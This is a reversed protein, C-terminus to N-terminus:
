GGAVRREFELAHKTSTKFQRSRKGALKPNKGFRFLYLSCNPATCLFIEKRQGNMCWVCKKRIAKLRSTGKTVNKGFRLPYLPCETFPCKKVENTTSACDLCKLRISKLPTKYNM